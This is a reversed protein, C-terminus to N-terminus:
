YYKCKFFYKYNENNNNNYINEKYSSLINLLTRGGRM